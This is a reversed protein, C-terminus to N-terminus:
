SIEQEISMEKMMITAITKVILMSTSAAYYDCFILHEVQLKFHEKDDCNDADCDEFFDEDTDCVCHVITWRCSSISRTVSNGGEELSATM